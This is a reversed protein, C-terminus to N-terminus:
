ISRSEKIYAFVAFTEIHHLFDTIPFMHKTWKRKDTQAVQASNQAMYLLYACFGEVTSSEL